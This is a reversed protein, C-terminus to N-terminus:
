AGLGPDEEETKSTSTKKSKKPAAKHIVVPAPTPSDNKQYIKIGLVVAALTIFFGCITIVIHTVFFSVWFILPDTTTTTM